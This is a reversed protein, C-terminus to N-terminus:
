RCVGGQRQMVVLVVDVVDFIREMSGVSRREREKVDATVARHECVFDQPGHRPTRRLVM